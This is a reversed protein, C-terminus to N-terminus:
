DQNRDSKSTSDKKRLYLAKSNLILDERFAKEKDAKVKEIFKRWERREQETSFLIWALAEWM